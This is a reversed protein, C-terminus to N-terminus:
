VAIVVDAAIPLADSSKEAAMRANVAPGGIGYDQFKIVHHVVFRGINGIHHALTHTPLADLNLGGLTLHSASIAM